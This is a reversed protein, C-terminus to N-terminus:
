SHSRPIERSCTSLQLLYKEDLAEPVFYPAEQKNDADEEGSVGM